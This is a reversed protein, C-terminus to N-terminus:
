LLLPNKREFHIISLSKDNLLVANTELKTKVFGNKELVRMSALNVTTTKATLLELKLQRDAVETLHLLAESAYGNNITSNCVRYGVDAAIGTIDFLNARGVVRGEDVLLYFLSKGMAQQAILSEIESKFYSFTEYSEPRPPVFSEFWAKNRVEFDHLESLRDKSLMEVQM